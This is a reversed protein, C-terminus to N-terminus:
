SRKGGVAQIFVEERPLYVISSSAQLVELSQQNVDEPELQGPRLRLAVIGKSYSAAGEGIETRSGGFSHGTDTASLPCHEVAHILIVGEVAVELVVSEGFLVEGVKPLMGSLRVDEADVVVWM